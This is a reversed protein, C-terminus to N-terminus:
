RKNRSKYAENALMIGIAKNESWISNFSTMPVPKPGVYPSIEPTFGPKLHTSIFWDTFGGGSPNAKPTVLSYGTKSRIMEAINRDRKTRESGQKYHWYLIEGSSHYSVATKFDKGNTFEYMARAEPESLPKTGKYNQPAPKGPNSVINNWGAPYQRNLDVGRINAKWASFNTSGNNIKLLESPNKASKYGQQVLTVGDPNVMPVFWISAKNLISKVSYGDISSNKVYGQAYQDMMEMVINTTMYERAHHSANIMIETNGKGLKVAYINRGEVSKGIIKKSALGPYTAVIEDIDKVMQSYSYVVKPNVLDKGVMYQISIDSKSVFGYRDGLNVKVYSGRDEVYPYQEGKKIYAFPVLKSGVYYYIPTSTKTKFDGVKVYRDSKNRYTRNLIPITLEKKVYGDINGFQIQHWSTYDNTRHYVENAKLYGVVILKGSSKDYVPVNNEIPTLYEINRTFEIKTDERKIFGIRGSIDVKLWNGHDSIIPYKNGKYLEAFAILDGSTNDYVLTNNTITVKFPSNKLGNNENQIRKALAPRTGDKKVYVTSNGYKIGHWSTYDSVRPYVQNKMLTTVEVLKGNVKQYAVIGDELVEFYKTNSTFESTVDSKRVYGTRGAVELSYWGSYHNLVPVKLGKELMAFEVLDGSSNDYVMTNDIFTIYENKSKQNTENKISTGTAYETGDKPVFGTINGVRVAHWSTYNRTRPYVQGKTLQGIEVLDGSSNDYIPLQDETVKFYKANSPFDLKAQDSQIYGLRGGLQIAYWSTYVKIVQLKLGKKLTGFSVLDSGTNDYVEADTTLTLSLGSTRQQNYFNNVSIGGSPVTNEKNVYAVKNGILIQHWSTYDREREYIQNEELGAIKILQGNKKEYVPLEPAVVKFYQDSSSFSLSEIATVKTKQEVQEDKPSEEKTTVIQDQHGSDEQPQTDDQSETDEQIQTEDQPEIGEQPQTEEVIPPTNEQDIITTPKLIKVEQGSLYAIYSDELEEIVQFDSGKAITAIEESDKNQVILSHDAVITNVQVDETSLEPKEVNTQETIAVQDIKITKDFWTLYIQGDIVTGIHKTNALLTGLKEGQENIIPEDQSMLFSIYAVEQQSTEEAIAAQLHINSLVGSIFMTCIVLKMLWKSM